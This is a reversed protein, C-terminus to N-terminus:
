EGQELLATYFNGHGKIEGDLLTLQIVETRKKCQSALLLAKIFFPLLSWQTAFSVCEVYSKEQTLSLIVQEGALYVM